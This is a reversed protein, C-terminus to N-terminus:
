LGLFISDFCTATYLSARVYIQDDLTGHQAIAVVIPAHNASTNISSLKYVGRPLGKTVNISVNGEDDAVTNVGM